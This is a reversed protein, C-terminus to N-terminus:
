GIAYIEPREKPTKDTWFWKLGAGGSWHSFASIDYNNSYVQGPRQLKWGLQVGCHLCSPLPKWAFKNGWSLSLSRSAEPHGKAICACAYLFTYSTHTHWIGLVCMFKRAVFIRFRVSLFTLLPKKKQTDPFLQIQLKTLCQCSCAAAPLSHLRFRSYSDLRLIIDVSTSFHGYNLSRRYCPTLVLRRLFSWNGKRERIVLIQLSKKQNWYFRPYLLNCCNRRVRTKTPCALMASACWATHGVFRPLMFLVWCQLHLPEFQLQYSRHPCVASKVPRRLM